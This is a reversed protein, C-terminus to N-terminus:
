CCFITPFPIHFSDVHLIHCNSQFFISTIFRIHEENAWVSTLWHCIVFIEDIVHLNGGNSISFLCIIFGPVNFPSHQHPSSYIMM